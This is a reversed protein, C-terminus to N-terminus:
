VGGPHCFLNLGCRAKGENEMLMDLAMTALDDAMAEMRSEKELYLLKLYAGCVDCSEAKVAGNSGELTYYDIGRTSECTSCKIRVKHWQAACLSCCLYRLGQEAGGSRVIGAVPYSGCVPCGGGEKRRSFAQEEMSSAMYVWYVQLAAAVFPLDRPSIGAPDGALIRDAMEEVETEDALMLSAVTERAATPLAAEKMQRLIMTLGERWAPDRPLSCADLLPMGHERCLAQEGHDPLSILPFRNLAEQQAEALLALFALYEGLSHGKSLLHFREARAAFLDRGPLFLFRIEGARAEIRGPALVRPETKM